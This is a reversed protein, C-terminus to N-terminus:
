SYHIRHNSLAIYKDTRKLNIKGPLKLILRHFHSTKSNKSNMFITNMKQIADKNFENYQQMSKSCKRETSALFIIKSM